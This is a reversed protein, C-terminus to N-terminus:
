IGIFILVPQRADTVDNVSILCINVFVTSKACTERYSSGIARPQWTSGVHKQQLFKYVKAMADLALGGRNTFEEDACNM